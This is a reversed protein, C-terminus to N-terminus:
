KAPTTIAPPKIQVDIKEAHGVGGGIFFWGLGVVILAGILVGLIGSAGGSNESM